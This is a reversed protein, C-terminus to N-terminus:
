PTRRAGTMRGEYTCGNTAATSIRGSLATIQANIEFAQFSGSQGNTCTFNGSVLGFHGSQAYSGTYTCSATTTAPTFTIQAGTSNHQVAWTGFEERYGSEGGAPCGSYTGVRGGLFNGTMVNVAWTQRTISKSASVGDITYAFTATTLSNLTFTATGAERTTGASPNFPQGIPSGTTQYVKGSYVTGSGNVGAFQMGPAVYWTAQSGAGYGYLVVFLMDNQQQVGVGWGSENPNYWLDSTDTAFSTAYAGTSLIATALAVSQLIKRM